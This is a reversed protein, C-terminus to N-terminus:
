DCTREIGAEDGTAEEGGEDDDGWEPCASARSHGLSGALSGRKPCLVTTWFGSAAAASAPVPEGASRNM